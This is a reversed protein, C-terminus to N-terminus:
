TPRAKKRSFLVSFFHERQSYIHVCPRPANAPSQEAQAFSVPASPDRDNVLTTRRMEREHPSLLIVPLVHHLDSVAVRDESSSLLVSVNGRQATECVELVRDSARWLDDCEEGVRQVASSVMGRTKM